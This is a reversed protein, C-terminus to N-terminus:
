KKNFMRKGDSAELFKWNYSLTMPNPQGSISIQIYETELRKDKSPNGELIGSFSGTQSAQFKEVRTGEKSNVSLTIEEHPQFKEGQLRYRAEQHNFIQMAVHRGNEGYAELPEPILCAALYTKKDDLVVLSFIPEGPLMGGIVQLCNSLKIDGEKKKIWAEGNQDIYGTGWLLPNNMGLLNCQYVKFRTSPSIGKLILRYPGYIKEPFSEDMKVTKEIQDPYESLKYFFTNEIQDLHAQAFAEGMKRQDLKAFLSFSIFITLFTFIYKMFNGKLPRYVWARM